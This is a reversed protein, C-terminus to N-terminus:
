DEEYCATRYSCYRCQWDSESFDPEGNRKTKVVLNYDRNPASGESVIERLKKAQEILNLIIAQREKKSLIFHHEAMLGTDRSVYLLIGNEVGELVMYTRLQDVHAEDPNVAIKDFSGGYGSYVSKIEVIYLTGNLRIVADTRYKFNVDDIVQTKDKEIEIVEIEPVSRLLNQVADHIVDGMEMKFASQESIPDTPKIHYEFWVARKCKHLSSPNVRFEEVRKVNNFTKKEVVAKLLREKLM